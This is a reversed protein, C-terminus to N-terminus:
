NIKIMKTIESENSTKLKIFYAGSSLNSVDLKITHLENTNLTNVIQGSMDYIIIEVAKEGKLDYIINLENICPNPFISQIEPTKVARRNILAQKKRLLLFGIGVIFSISVGIYAYWKNVEKLEDYKEQLYKILSQSRLVRQELSDVKSAYELIKNDSFENSSSLESIKYTKINDQVMISDLYFRLEVERSIKDTSLMESTYSLEYISLLKNSIIKYINALTKSDKTYYFSGGTSNCINSLVEKEVTGYGVIYIPIEITKAQKIIEKYNVISKNDIGDTMAIIVKLGDKEKMYNVASNIADYFATEGEPKLEHLKNKLKTFSEKYFRSMYSIQSNFAILQIKLEEFKSQSYDLFSSVASKMDKLPDKKEVKDFQSSDISNSNYTNIKRGDIIVEKWEKFPLVSTGFKDFFEITGAM